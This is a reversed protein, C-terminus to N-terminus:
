FCTVASRTACRQHGIRSGETLEAAGACQQNWIIPTTCRNPLCWSSLLSETEGALRPSGPSPSIYQQTPRAAADAATTHRSFAAHWSLLGRAKRKM